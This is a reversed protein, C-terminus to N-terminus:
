ESIPSIWMASILINTGSSFATSCNFLISGREDVYAKANNNRDNNTVYVSVQAPLSQIPAYNTTNSYAVAYRGTPFTNKVSVQVFIVRGQKYAYIFNVHERNAQPTTWNTSIDQFLMESKFANLDNLNADILDFHDNVDAIGDELIQTATEEAITQASQASQQASTASAQAQNASNQASVSAELAEELLPMQSESIVTDDKLPSEEIEMIFNATGLISSGQAIRLEVPYKGSFITMQEELVATVKSSAYSCPYEFGTGDKKTARITVTSGSPITFLEGQKYINFALLRSTKDYQSAKVVLPVSNPILDLNYTQLIAM